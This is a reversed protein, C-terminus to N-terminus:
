LTIIEKEILKKTLLSNLRSLDAKSKIFDIDDNTINENDLLAYMENAYKSLGFEILERDNTNKLEEYYATLEDNSMKTKNKFIPNNTKEFLYDLLKKDKKEEADQMQELEAKKELEKIANKFISEDFDLSFKYALKYAQLYFCEKILWVKKENDWNKERIKKIDNVFTKSYETKFVYYGNELTVNGNIAKRAKSLSTTKKTKKPKKEFESHLYTYIEKFSVGYEDDVYGVGEHYNLIDATEKFLSLLKERSYRKYKKSKLDLVDNLEKM